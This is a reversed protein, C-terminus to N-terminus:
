DSSEEPNTSSEPMDNKLHDPINMGLARLKKIFALEARLLENEHELEQERTLSKKAPTRKKKKSMSPRGKPKPTLGAMGERLFDQHWRQLLDGSPLGYKLAVNLYSDGSNLYYHIVNKKFQSPYNQKTRRRNLADFGRKNVTRVWKSVTSPSPIGYDRAVTTYGGVGRNYAEVVQKKFADDYKAM